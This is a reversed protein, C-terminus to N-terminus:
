LKNKNIYNLLNEEPPPLPQPDQKKMKAMKDEYIKLPSDNDMKINNPNEWSDEKALSNNDESLKSRINYKLGADNLSKYYEDKSVDEVLRKLYRAHGEYYQADEETYEKQILEILNTQDQIEDKLSDKYIKNYYERLSKSDMQRLYDKEKYFYFSQDLLIPLILNLMKFRKERQYLVLALEEVSLLKIMTIHTKRLSNNKNFMEQHSKKVAKGLLKPELMLPLKWMNGLSLLNTVHNLVDNGVIENPTKINRDITGGDPFYNEKIKKSKKKSKKVQSSSKKNILLIIIIVIIIIKFDM